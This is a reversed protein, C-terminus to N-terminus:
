VHVRCTDLRTARSWYNKAGNHLAIEESTEGYCLECMDLRCHQCYYSPGKILAWCYDCNYQSDCGMRIGEFVTLRVQNHRVADFWTEQSPTKLIAGGICSCLTGQPKLCHFNKLHEIEPFSEYTEPPHMDIIGGEDTVVYEYGQFASLWSAANIM